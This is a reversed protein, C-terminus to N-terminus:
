CYSFIFTYLAHSNTFFIIKFMRTNSVPTCQEMEQKTMHVVLAFPFSAKVRCVPILENILPDLPM